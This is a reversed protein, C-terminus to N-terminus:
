CSRFNNVEKVSSRPETGDGELRRIVEQESQPAQGKGFCAASYLAAGMHNRECREFRRVTIVHLLLLTVTQKDRYNVCMHNLVSRPYRPLLCNKGRM